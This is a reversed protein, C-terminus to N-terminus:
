NLRFPAGIGILINDKSWWDKLGWNGKYCRMVLCMGLWKIFEHESVHPDVEPLSQKMGPLMAGKVYDM